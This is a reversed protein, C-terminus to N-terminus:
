YELEVEPWAIEGAFFGSVAEPLWPYEYETFDPAAASQDSIIQPFALPRTGQLLPCVLVNPELEIFVVAGAERTIPTARAKPSVVEVRAIPNQTQAVPYAIM